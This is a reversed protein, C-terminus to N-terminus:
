KRKIPEIRVEKIKKEKSKIEDGSIFGVIILGIILSSYLFLDLDIKIIFSVLYFLNQFILALKWNFRWNSIEKSEVIKHTPKM